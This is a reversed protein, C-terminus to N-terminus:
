WPQIRRYKYGAWPAQPIWEQRRMLPTAGYTMCLNVHVSSAEQWHEVALVQVPNNDNTQSTWSIMHIHVQKCDQLLNIEKSKHLTSSMVLQNYNSVYLWVLIRLTREIIKGPTPRQGGHRPLYSQMHVEESFLIFIRSPRM